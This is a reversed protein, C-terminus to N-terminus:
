SPRWNKPPINGDLLDMGNATILYRVVEGGDWEVKRDLYGSSVLYALRDEVTMQTVHRRAVNVLYSVVSDVTVPAMQQMGRVYNLILRDIEMQNQREVENM